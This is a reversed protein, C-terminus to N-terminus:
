LLAAAAQRYLAEVDARAPHATGTHLVAAAGAAAGWALAEADACERDLALVLAALFSDGAGVAGLTTVPLPDQHVVGRRTAL